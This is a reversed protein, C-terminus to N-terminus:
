RSTLEGRIADCKRTLGILLQDFSKRFSTVGELQLKEGVEDLGIGLRSLKELSYQAEKWGQQLSARPRGHDRFAKMTAPPLTNVTNLGILEEVYLLDSYEPNKTGTSAWLLRQVRGGRKKFDAFHEGEFIELFRQYVIKANAVAIKGRLALSDATKIAELARDVATDVRSVFFSAVSAIHQPKLCSELGRLYAQAVAEYHALSFMLTVNVNIGMGILKELAPIGATTAPVKIMLNPRDVMKWLRGAEAITGATNSALHPSLELSVYGDVRDTAEYVSQLFDCAMRVDEIALTEYIKKAEAEPDDALLARLADDYDSSEDIAKEFITPNSTIGRLGDEEIMKKLEGHILMNRRIYDLWISQGQKSLEKLLNQEKSMVPNTVM